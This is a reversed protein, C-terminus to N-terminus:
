SAVVPLSTTTSVTVEERACLRCPSIRDESSLKFAASEDLRAFVDLEGGGVDLERLIRAVDGVRSRGLAGETEVFRAAGWPLQWECVDAARCEGVPLQPARGVVHLRQRIVQSTESHLSAIRQSAGSRPTEHQALLNICRRDSRAERGKRIQAMSPCPRERGRASGPAGYSM